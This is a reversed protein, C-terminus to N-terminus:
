PLRSSHSFGAAGPRRSSDGDAQNGSRNKGPAGPNVPVRTGAAGSISPRGGGCWRVPGAVRFPTPRAVETLPGSARSRLNPDDRAGRAPRSRPRFRRRGRFRPPIEPAEAVNKTSLRLSLRHEVLEFFLSGGPLDFRGALPRVLSGVVVAGHFGARVHGKGALPLSLASRKLAPDPAESAGLRAPRSRAMRAAGTRGLWRIPSEKSRGDLRAAGPVADPPGEM